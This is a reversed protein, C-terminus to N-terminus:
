PCSSLILSSTIIVDETISDDHGHNVGKIVDESISDDHGHNVGKIV